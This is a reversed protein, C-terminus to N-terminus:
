SGGGATNIADIVDDLSLGLAAAEALLRHCAALVPDAYGAERSPVSGTRATLKLIESLSQM